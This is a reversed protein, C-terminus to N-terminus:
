FNILTTSSQIENIDLGLRNVLESFFLAFLNIKGKVVKELINGCGSVTSM